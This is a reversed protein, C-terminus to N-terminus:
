RIGHSRIERVLYQAMRHSIERALIWAPVENLAVDSLSYGVQQGALRVKLHLADRYWDRTSTASIVRMTLPNGTPGFTRFSDLQDLPPINALRPELGIFDTGLIGAINELTSRLNASQEREITLEHTTVALAQQAGAIAARARRRQNRGFRQAM